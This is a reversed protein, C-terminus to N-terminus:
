KIIKANKIGASNLLNVAYMPNDYVELAYRCGADGTIRIIKAKNGNQRLIDRGKLANTVTGISIQHRM